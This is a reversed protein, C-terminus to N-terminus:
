QSQCKSSWVPPSHMNSGRILLVGSSLASWYPERFSREWKGFGLKDRLLHLRSQWRLNKNSRYGSQRTNLLHHIIKTNESCETLYTSLISKVKLSAVNRFPASLWSMYNLKLSNLWHATCLIIGAPRAPTLLSGPVVLPNKKATKTRTSRTGEWM